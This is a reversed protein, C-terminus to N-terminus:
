ANQSEDNTKASVKTPNGFLAQSVLHGVVIGLLVLGISYLYHLEPLLYNPVLGLLLAIGFFTLDHCNAQSDLFGSRNREGSRGTIRKVIREGYRMALSFSILLAISAFLEITTM